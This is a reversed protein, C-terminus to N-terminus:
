LFMPILVKLQLFIDCNAYTYLSELKWDWPMFILFFKSHSTPLIIIGELSTKIKCKQKHMQKNKKHYGCVKAM